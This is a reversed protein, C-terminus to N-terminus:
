PKSESTNERPAGDLMISIWQTNPNAELALKFTMTLPVSLLMGVPGLVWGWFVLSMFVVLISLGMGRGMFRPEVVNGMVGGIVTYGLATVAAAGWGLEVLGLLIPPVAALIAGFSPIFNLLFAAVGWLIPFDVGILFVMITILVASILNLTTKLLVYNEITDNFKGIFDLYPKPDKMAVKLKDSFSLSEVMIIIVMILILALNTLVGSLAQLSTGAWEMLVGPNFYEQVVPFSIDVGFQEVLGVLDRFLSTLREEYVPLQTLFVNISNGILLGIGLVFGVMVVIVLVMALASPVNHRKLWSFPSAAIVALFLALLFPVLISEAMQMGMVIVVFSATGLLFRMAGSYADIM